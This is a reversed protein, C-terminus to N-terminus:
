RNRGYDAHAPADEGRENIVFLYGTIAERAMELAHEISDGDTFCGDLAPM